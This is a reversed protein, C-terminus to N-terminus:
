LASSTWQRLVQDVVQTATMDNVDIQVAGPLAVTRWHEYFDVAWEMPVPTDQQQLHAALTEPSCSLQILMTRGIGIKQVAEADAATMVALEAVVPWDNNLYASIAGINGAFMREELAQRQEPTLNAPVPRHRPQCLDSQWLLWDGGLRKM